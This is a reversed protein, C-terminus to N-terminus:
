LSIVKGRNLLLGPDFARKIKKQVEMGEPGLQDPLFDRKTMGIGHEGSITGGLAITVAFLESALTEARRIQDRDGPDLMINVHLNGDGAHGFTPVRLCYKAGLKGVAEVLDPLRSRPVCVDENLKSTAIRALSPSISRRMKWLDERQDESEAITFQIAGGKKLIPEVAEMGDRAEAETGDTEILLSCGAGRPIRFDVFQRVCNMTEADILEVAAPLVGCDLVLSVTAAADVATKFFALVTSFSRPRPLLKLTIETIVGLTGESGVLLTTVPDWKKRRGGTQGCGIVSGDWAVYEVGAVYDRTVGYKLARPGGADQAVNGGITSVELSSPDPPFMLDAKAAEKQLAANVVGSQVVATRESKDLSLIRNLKETSIIMGGGVPVTGGAFGTGAGRPLSVIGSDHCISMICRVDETTRPFAVAFPLAMINTADFAYCTLIEPTTDIKYPGIKRGIAEVVHRSSKKDM